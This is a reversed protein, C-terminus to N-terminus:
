HRRGAIVGVATVAADGALGTLVGAGATIRLSPSAVMAMLALHNTAVAAQFLPVLVLVGVVASLTTLRRGPWSRGTCGALAVICGAVAGVLFERGYVLNIGRLGASAAGGHFDRWSLFPAVLLAVSGAVALVATAGRAVVAERVPPAVRGGGAGQVPLPTGAPAAPPLSTTEM